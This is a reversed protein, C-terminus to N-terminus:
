QSEMKINQAELFQKLVRYNEIIGNHVISLKGSADKHPHANAETPAGHTAWRTHAMGVYAGDLAGGIKQELAAIRGVARRTIMKRDRIVVIGASDYGRYDLRKIGEILIPCAERKGIYAVIGCM